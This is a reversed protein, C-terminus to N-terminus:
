RQVWKLLRLLVRHLLIGSCVQLVGKLVTKCFWFAAKRLLYLTAGISASIVFSWHADSEMTCAFVKGSKFCLPSECGGYSDCLLLTLM